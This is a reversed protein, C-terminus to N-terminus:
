KGGKPREFVAPVRLLEGEREPFQAMIDRVTEAACPEPVDQRWAGKGLPAHTRPEAGATDVDALRDMYGLIADAEARFSEVESETMKVRALAALHRVDEATLKM